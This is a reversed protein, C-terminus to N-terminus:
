EIRFLCTNRVRRVCRVGWCGATDLLDRGLSDNCDAAVYRFSLSKVEDMAALRMNTPPPSYKDVNPAASLLQWGDNASLGWLEFRGIWVGTTSYISVRDALVGKDFNLQIHMGPEIGQWTSWSSVENGDFARAVDWINPKATLRWGPRRPIEGAPGFVRLESVSWPDQGRSTQVVRVGHITQVPFAFRWEWDPQRTRDYGTWLAEVALEAQASEYSNWLQRTTYAQPLPRLTLIRENEPVVKEIEKTM